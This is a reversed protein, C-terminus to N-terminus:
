FNVPADHARNAAGARRSSIRLGIAATRSFGSFAPRPYRPGDFIRAATSGVAFRCVQCIAARGERWSAFTGILRLLEQKEPGNGGAILFAGIEIDAVQGGSPLNPEHRVFVRGTKADSIPAPGARRACEEHESGHGFGRCKEIGGSPVEAVDVLDDVPKRCWVTHGRRLSAGFAKMSEALPMEIGHM